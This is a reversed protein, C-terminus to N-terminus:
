LNATIKTILGQITQRVDPDTAKNLQELLENVSLGTIRPADARRTSDIGVKPLVAASVRQIASFLFDCNYGAIFGLADAGLHVTTGGEGALQAVFLQIAGGSIMGLLLRNIYEPTRNPDFTRDYIHEHACRLLYAAAGLGGYAFPILSKLVMGYQIWWLM